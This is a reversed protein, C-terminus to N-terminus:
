LHLARYLRERYHRRATNDARYHGRPLTTSDYLIDTKFRFIFIEYKKM